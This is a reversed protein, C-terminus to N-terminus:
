PAAQTLSPMLTGQEQLSKPRSGLKLPSVQQKIGKKFTSHDKNGNAHAAKRRLM